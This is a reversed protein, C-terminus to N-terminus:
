VTLKNILEFLKYLHHQNTKVIKGDPIRDFSHIVIFLSIQKPFFFIGNILPM